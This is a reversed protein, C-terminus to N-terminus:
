EDQNPPNFIGSDILMAMARFQDRVGRLDVAIVGDSIHRIHPAIMTSLFAEVISINPPPNIYERLERKKKEFKEKYQEPIDTEKRCFPCQAQGSNVICDMHLITKCGPCFKSDQEQFEALCISCKKDKM